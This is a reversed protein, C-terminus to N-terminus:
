SHDKFASEWGIMAAKREAGWHYHGLVGSSQIVRHCPILFAVPNAGVATGVARNAKPKHIETAIRNYTTVGGPPIRLLAEWVKLQFPTGKIHLRVPQHVAGKKTFLAMADRHIPADKKEIAAKPYATRLASLGSSETQAFALYCIGKSTSAVITNGFVTPLFSYFIRLQEGGNKYEGPTMGEIQVFLDHLRGTGSLGSQVAATLTSVQQTRLLEKAHALTLYQLFKKPSTGAWATFMKQFHAPSLQVHAAIQELLPQTKAHLIMYGIANTIRDFDQETQSPM